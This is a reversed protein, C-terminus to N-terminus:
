RPELPDGTKHERIQFRLFEYLADRAAADATEIVVKGGGRVEEFRLRLHERRARLTQVGPPETAHVFLPLSFDGSGFAESIHRLHQRIQAISTADDAQKATVEITGGAKQLLFHHTTKLQDFGMGHNARETAAGHQHQPATATGAVLAIALLLPTM